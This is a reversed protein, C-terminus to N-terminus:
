KRGRKLHCRSIVILVGARRTLLFRRNSPLLGAWGPVSFIGSLFMWLRNIPATGIFAYVCPACCKPAATALPLSFSGSFSAGASRVDLLTKSEGAKLSEFANGKAGKNTKGGEGKVGNLNEFSSVRSQVGKPMIYLEQASLREVLVLIFVLGFLSFKLKHTTKTKM